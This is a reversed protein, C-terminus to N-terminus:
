REVILAFEWFCFRRSFVIEKNSAAMSAKFRAFSTELAVGALATKPETLTRKVIIM